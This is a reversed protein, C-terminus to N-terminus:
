FEDWGGDYSTESATHVIAGNVAAKVQTSPASKAPIARVLDSAQSGKSESLQFKAAASVLLNARQTLSHTAATTEEFMAANQQTVNDLDNVSANIEDIGQSQEVASSAIESMRESIESVSTFITTLASGTEGVLDFGQQVQDASKTILASIDQAAESSRQALGRVETAVVAFGRGADGARAAEVGANLALLNTQFAIDEIVRTIKSIEASSDKIGDMAEVAKSAVEGGHKARTKAQDSMEAAHSAGDAASRVSTTLEDLAAATEELAAAQKETRRSLDDAANTIESAENQISDANTKVADIADHLVTAATNFDTRLKGYAEPFSDSIQVDLSGNAMGNLAAGLLEVVKTQVAEHAEREAMESKQRAEREAMADKEAQLAEAQAQEEAARAEAEAKRDLEEQHQRNKLEEEARTQEKEQLKIREIMGDRFVVLARSIDGFITRDKGYPVETDTDGKSLTAMRQNLRQLPRTVSYAIVAALLSMGITLKLLIFQLDGKMTAQGAEINTLYAGTGIIWDWPEFAQVVAIKDVPADGDAAGIAAWQYEVIGADAIRSADVMENFLFVGNPDTFAGLEQGDLSPKVAHMVMKPRSDTIWFYNDGEYRLAKLTQMAGAKAADQSMEGSQARTHFDQVISLAVDTLHRLETQKFGISSHEFTTIAGRQMFLLGAIMLCVLAFLRGGVGVFGLVRM